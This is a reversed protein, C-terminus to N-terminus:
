ASAIMVPHSVSSPMSLSILATLEISLLKDATLSNSTKEEDATFFAYINYPALELLAMIIAVGIGNDAGLSTKYATLYKGNNILKIGQTRFDIDYDLDSVCVMDLHSHLITYPKGDNVTKKIIVNNAKDKKAELNNKKGFDVMFDALQSECLSNHPISCIQDFYFIIKDLIENSNYFNEM